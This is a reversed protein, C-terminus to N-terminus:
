SSSGLDINIFPTHNKKKKLIVYVNMVIPLCKSNVSLMISQEVQYVMNDSVYQSTVM